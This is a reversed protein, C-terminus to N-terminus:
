SMPDKKVVASNEEGKLTDNYEDPMMIDVKSLDLNVLEKRLM